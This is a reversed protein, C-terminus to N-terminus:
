KCFFEAHRKRTLLQFSLFHTDTHTFTRSRSFLCFLPLSLILIHTHTVKHAHTLSLSPTHTRTHIHTRVHIHAQAHTHLHSLYRLLCLRCRHCTSLFLRTGQHKRHNHTYRELYICICMLMCVFVCCVIVFQFAVECAQAHTSASV